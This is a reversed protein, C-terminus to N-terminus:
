WQKVEELLYLIEAKAKEDTWETAGKGQETMAKYARRYYGVAKLPTLQDFESCIDLFNTREIEMVKINTAAMTQYAYAKLKPNLDKVKILQEQLEGLTDLDFQSCQHPAILIDAVCAGTLLERSNRGAVDVVVFNFSDSFSKLTNTINGEAKVGTIYPKVENKERDQCWMYASPQPDACVLITKGEQALAAAVSVATTSKGSGGKNCGIMIIM